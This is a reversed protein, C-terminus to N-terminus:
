ASFVCFASPVLFSRAQQQPLRTSESQPESQKGRVRIAVPAENPHRPKTVDSSHLRAQETTVFQPESPLRPIRVFMGFCRSTNFEFRETAARKPNRTSKTGGPASASGFSGYRKVSWM